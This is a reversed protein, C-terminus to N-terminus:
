EKGVRREESRNSEAVYLWGRGLARQLAPLPVFGLEGRHSDLLSKIEQLDSADAPRVCVGPPPPPSTCDGSAREMAASARDPASGTNSVTLSSSAFAHERRKCWREHWRGPM